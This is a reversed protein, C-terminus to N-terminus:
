PADVDPAWPRRTASPSLRFADFDSRQLRWPFYPAGPAATRPSISAQPRGACGLAPRASCHEMWQQQRSPKPQKSYAPVATHKIQTQHTEYGHSLRVALPSEPNFNCWHLLM